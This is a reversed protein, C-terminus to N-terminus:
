PHSAVFLRHRSTDLRRNPIPATGVVAWLATDIEAILTTAGHAPLFGAVVLGALRPDSQNKVPSEYVCLKFAGVMGAVTITLQDANGAHDLTNIIFM